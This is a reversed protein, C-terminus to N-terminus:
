DNPAGAAIWARILAIDGDPLPARGRPMRAGCLDPGGNVKRFMMSAEPDGGIVRTNGPCESAPFTAQDVLSSYATGQSSMDLGGSGPATTHCPSCSGGVIAYVNTFTPDRTMAGGESM